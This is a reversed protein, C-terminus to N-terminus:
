FDCHSIMNQNMMSFVVAAFKQETRGVVLLEVEIDDFLDQSFM